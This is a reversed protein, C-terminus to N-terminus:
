RRDRRAQGPRRLPGAPELVARRALVAAAPGLLPGPGGPRAGRGGAASGADAAVVQAGAAGAALVLAAVAVGAVLAGLLLGTLGVGGGRRAGCQARRPPPMESGTGFERAAERARRM